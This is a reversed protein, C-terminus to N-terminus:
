EHQGRLGNFLDDEPISTEVISRALQFEETPWVTREVDRPVAFWQGNPDIQTRHALLAADRVGFFDAAPISTTIRHADDPNDEWHTLWDHYPSELEADTMAQHLAEVRRKHFQQNFYIKPVVWADAAADVAAMTVEHTRIHDPHPYGGNEDYTTVVHPRFSRILEALPDVADALPMAAFSDPPVDTPDDPFGSDAFGLWEHQVDLIKAAAAMEDRRVAEIGRRAVEDHMEPNLVDGREGGTCTVVMVEVGESRYKATTAAGKSSEDDPHAHVAMLRLTVRSTQWQAWDM